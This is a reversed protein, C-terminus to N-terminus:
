RRYTEQVFPIRHIRSGRDGIDENSDEEEEPNIYIYGRRKTDYVRVVKYGQATGCYPCDTAGCMCAM